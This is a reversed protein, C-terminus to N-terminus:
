KRNEPRVHPNYNKKPGTYAGSFFLVFKIGFISQRPNYEAFAEAGFGIDYSVKTIAQASLYVGFGQYYEPIFGYATDEVTIVGTFYTLGGFVALNSRNKEKRLGYGFHGQVNNNSTFQEGSMLVGAQFYQRRIHFHYDLAIAKELDNRISSKLFGAGLTLYNNYKRYRKLDCLIEEKRDYKVKTKPLTDVQSQLSFM